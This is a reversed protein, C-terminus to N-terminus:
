GVHDSKTKSKSCDVSASSGTQPKEKVTLVKSVVSVLICVGNGLGSSYRSM